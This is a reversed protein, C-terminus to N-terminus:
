DTCARPRPLNIRAQRTCMTTSSPRSPRLLCVRPHGTAPLSIHNRATLPRPRPTLPPPHQSAATTDRISRGRRMLLPNKITTTTPQWKQQPGCEPGLVCRFRLRGSPWVSRSFGLISFSFRTINHRPSSRTVSLTYTPQLHLHSAVPSCSDVYVVFADFTKLVLSTQPLDPILLRPGLHTNRTAPAPIRARPTQLFAGPFAPLQTASNTSRHVSSSAVKRLGFVQPFVIRIGGSRQM